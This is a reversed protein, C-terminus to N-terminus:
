PCSVSDAVVNAGIAVYKAKTAGGSVTCGAEIDSLTVDYTGIPLNFYFTTDTSTMARDTQGEVALVYGDPDPTGITIVRVELNGVAEDNSNDACATSALAGLALALLLRRTM